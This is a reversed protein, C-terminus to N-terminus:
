RLDEDVATINLRGNDFTAVIMHKYDNGIITLQDLSTYPEIQVYASHIKVPNTVNIHYDIIQFALLYIIIIVILELHLFYIISIIKGNEASTNRHVPRCYYKFPGNYGEVIPAFFEVFM